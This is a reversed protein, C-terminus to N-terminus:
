DHGLLERIAADADLKGNDTHRKNFRTWHKTLSSFLKGLIPKAEDKRM